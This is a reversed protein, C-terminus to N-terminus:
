PNAAIRADAAQLANLLSTKGTIAQDVAEIVEKTTKFDPYQYLGHELGYHVAREATAPLARWFGV